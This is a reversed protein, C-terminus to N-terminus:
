GDTAEQLAHAATVVERYRAVLARVVEEDCPPVHIRWGDDEALCLSRRQTVLRRISLGDRVTLMRALWGGAICYLWGSPARVFTDHLRQITDSCGEITTLDDSM